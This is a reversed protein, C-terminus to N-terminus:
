ARVFCKQVRQTVNSLLEYAITGAANAIEDVSLHNGWLEVVDGVKAQPCFRLDIAIMDMSVRGILPVRQGHLLVVAGSPLYRPYGDGYGVAVIGMLISEPAQWTSGYGVSEGAQITKCAILRSQLSMVAKLGLDAATVDALPSAGYLMIGPRVWDAHTQPWACVAASNALSRLGSRGTTITQFCDFQAQTHPNNPVDACAFHTMLNIPQRVQPCNLASLAAPMDKPLFGLRHMGTDIKLWVTVPSRITSQQLQEIQAQHHVVTWINLAVLQEIEAAMFFGELLIIPKLIGLARIQEAECLNLVAFADVYHDLARACDALGHGYANAKIAAMIRSHPAFRRVQLANYVLHNLQITACLPRSM